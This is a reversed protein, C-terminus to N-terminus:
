KHPLKRFRLSVAKGQLASGGGGGEIGRAILESCVCGIRLGCRGLNGRNQFLSDTTHLLLGTKGLGATHQGNPVSGYLM